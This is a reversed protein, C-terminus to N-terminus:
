LTLAPFRGLLDMRIGISVGRNKSYAGPIIVQLSRDTLAQPVILIVQHPQGTVSAPVVETIPQILTDTQNKIVILSHRLSDLTAQTSPRNGTVSPNKDLYSILVYHYGSKQLLAEQYSSKLEEPTLSLAAEIAQPKYLLSLYFQDTELEDYTVGRLEKLFTLYDPMSLNKGAKALVQDPSRVIPQEEKNFLATQSNSGCSFLVAGGLLFILRFVM